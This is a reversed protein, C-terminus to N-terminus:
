PVSGHPVLRGMNGAIMWDDGVRTLVSMVNIFATQFPGDVPKFFIGANSTIVATNGTIRVTRGGIQNVQWQETGAFQQTLNQQLAARGVISVPNPGIYSLYGDVVLAAAAAADNANLAAVWADVAANVDAEDDAFAPAAMLCLAAVMGIIRM